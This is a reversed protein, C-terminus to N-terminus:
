PMTSPPRASQRTLLKEKAWEAWRPRDDFLVLKALLEDLRGDTEGRRVRARADNGVFTPNDAEMAVAEDYYKVADDLRGAAEMVLGLNNRPEPQYPMSKIAYQFEWAALYLKGQHFYVKGLNNHAPGFTVDADLAHKLVSEAQEWQGQEILAVAKTNERRALETDRRLDATVTQYDAEAHRAQQACGASIVTLVFLGGRALSRWMGPVKSDSSPTM